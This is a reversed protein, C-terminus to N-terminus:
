LATARLLRKTLSEWSKEAPAQVDAQTASRSKVPVVPVDADSLDNHVVKVTDLSLESQVVPREPQPPSARLISIPNLKSTWTAPRKESTHSAPKKAAFPSIAKKAPAAATEVMIKAPATSSKKSPNMNFKPLGAKKNERYSVAGHGSAVSKGALLLKGLNMIM